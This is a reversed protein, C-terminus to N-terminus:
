EVVVELKWSRLEIGPVFAYVYGCKDKANYIYAAVPIYGTGVPANVIAENPDLLFEGESDVISIYTCPWGTTCVTAYAKNNFMFGRLTGVTYNGWNNPGNPAKGQVQTLTIAGEGTWGSWTAINSGGAVADRMFWAGSLDGSCASIQQTWNGDNSPQGTQIEKYASREGDTYIWCFNPGTATRAGLATILGAGKTLNGSVSLYGAIASEKSEFLLEAPQDAGNKWCYISAPTTGMVGDANMSAVLLGAEDNSMWAIKLGNCGSMNLDGKAALTKGDFLKTGIVLKDGSVGIKSYNNLDGVGMETATKTAMAGIKTYTVIVKEVPNTTYTRSTKGDASTVTFEVPKTYDAAVTPDPTITAGETIKVTATAVQMQELQITTYGLDISKDYDYVDGRLTEAEGLNLTFSEIRCKDGRQIQEGTPTTDDDSCAALSLGLGAVIAFTFFKLTKM